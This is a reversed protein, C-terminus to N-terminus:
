PKLAAKRRRNLIAALSFVIAFQVFCTGLSEVELPNWWSHPHTKISHYSWWCILIIFQVPIGFKILPGLWKGIRYRTGTLNLYNDRFTDAGYRNILISFFLGNFILGISWVWDQNQLFNFNFVSPLGGIIMVVAVIILASKRKINFDQITRVGLELMAILSTLAAFFLSLFFLFLFFQGFPISQLLRPIWIFMLGFNGTQLASMADVAGLLAFVTPLIAAAAIISASADGLCTGIATGIIDHERRMYISYVMVLGTGAGTSWAVQALAQIWTSAKLLVHFSPKFLFRFGVISNPLFCVRIVLVSLLFFLMPVFIKNAHQIGSVGKYIVAIGIALVLLHFLSVQWHRHVFTTWYAQPDSYLKPSFSAFIYKLCWGAIVAYYSMLGMMCLAVFIGLIGYRKSLSSFSGVPGMRLGRGLGCGVILLPLAWTLMFLLFPIIFAAGGYQGIIRPFRWLNGTGVAMGIMAILISLRTSFYKKQSKM